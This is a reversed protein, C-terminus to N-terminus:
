LLLALPPPQPLAVVTKWPSPHQTVLSSKCDNKSYIKVALDTTALRCFNLYIEKNELGQKSQSLNDSMKSKGFLIGM